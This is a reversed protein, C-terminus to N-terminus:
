RMRSGCAMAREGPRIERWELCATILAQHTSGSLERDVALLTAAVTEFDLHHPTLRHLTRALRLGVMDRADALAAAFRRPERAHAERLPRDDVAALAGESQEAARRLTEALDAAILRMAVLRDLYFEVLMDFVAGTFPLGLKHVTKGDIELPPADLGAIDSMKLANSASRIQRTQSLEGIRCLENEVYLDGETVRLVHDIFSDFHLVALMAVLDSAAEHFARYATTLTEPTPVGVLSFVIGHGTEHALVDFNLAFPRKTGADDAAEGCELFGWGFHANNWAVHPILELRPHSISFHWPLPGGLYVEWVDLVRRVIGFVHAARFAPDDPGLHDFHGNQDPLAPLRRRGRFPPLDADGYPEKGVPDLAYMRADSPGPGLSGRPSSVWIIQPERFDALLPAQAFVRFRSGTPRFFRDLSFSM